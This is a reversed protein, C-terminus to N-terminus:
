TFIVYNLEATKDPFTRHSSVVGIIIEKSLFSFNINGSVREVKNIYKLSDLVVFIFFVFVANAFLSAYKYQMWRRCPCTPNSFQTLGVM